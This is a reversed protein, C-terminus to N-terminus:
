GSLSIIGKFALTQNKAINGKYIYRLVRAQFQNNTNTVSAKFQTGSLKSFSIQPLNKNKQLSISHEPTNAAFINSWYDAAFESPFIGKKNTATWSQYKESLMLDIQFILEDINEQCSFSIDWHIKAAELRIKWTETAPLLQYRCSIIIEDKTKHLIEWKGDTRSCLYPEIQTSCASHKTLELDKWYLCFRGRLFVLALDEKNLIQFETQSFINDLYYKITNVASSKYIIQGQHLLDARHCLQRIINLDHSAMVITKGEKVLSKLKDLCKKQFQKDGVVLTEDILLIDFDMNIAIAFGLRALMGSSYYKLPSKIYSLPIGAFELIKRYLPLIDKKRLGYLHCNLVINDKGNLEKKFGGALDIFSSIKKSIKISGQSPKSIGALLKLLTTKGAGNLGILGIAEGSKASFNINKMLFNKNNLYQKELNITEITFKNM